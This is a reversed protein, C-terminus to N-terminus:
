QREFSVGMADVLLFNNLETPPSSLVALSDAGRAGLKALWDACQNGERLTHHLQFEWNRRIMGRIIAIENGFMHFDQNGDRILGLVHLSDSYCVVKQVGLELCINIGHFLAMIEAYVINSHDLSGYFGRM